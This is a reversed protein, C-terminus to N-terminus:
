GKGTKFTHYRVVIKADIRILDSKRFDTKGDIEVSEVSDEKVLWGKSLDPIAIREINVFGANSFEWSIDDVDKRKAGRSTIPPKQRKMMHYVVEISASYPFQTDKDFVEVGNFSVKDVIGERAKEDASLDEVIRTAINHFEQAELIRVVDSYNMSRCADAAIGATQKKGTLTRWLKKRSERRKEAKIRQEEERKQQEEQRRRAEEARQRALEEQRRRAEEARQKAAERMREQYEESDYYSEEEEDSDSDYSSFGSYDIEDEEDEDEDVVDFEAGSYDRHLEADCETCTWDYSYENYGSQKFLSVGCNPCKHEDDVVTFPDSSYERHLEANCETCTWNEEYDSFGWQNKLYAGCNPCKEDDDVETFEDSSYDRHLLASCESCTYDNMNIYEKIRFTDEVTRLTFLKDMGVGPLRPQTPKAGPSLILKDYNEEFIEGNELNKVSVTKREPHISIVEHHIKMNIRFRKFFSEPTQLTLEEPDTIVDGIYYPLGCNAYSIYGSREFVTIEAHEDLRRIRAAATAGGAVGGVIIVKM